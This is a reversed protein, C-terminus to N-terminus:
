CLEVNLAPSFSFYGLSFFAFCKNVQVAALARQVTRNSARAEDLQSQLFQNSSPQTSQSPTGPRPPSGDYARREDHLEGRLMTLERQFASYVPSDPIPNHSGRVSSIPSMSSASSVDATMGDNTVNATNTLNQRPSSLSPANGVINEIQDFCRQYSSNYEEMDNIAQELSKFDSVVDTSYGSPRGQAVESDNRAWISRCPDLNDSRQIVENILGAPLNAPNSVTRRLVGKTVGRGHSALGSM